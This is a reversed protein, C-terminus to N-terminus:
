RCRRFRYTLVIGLTLFLVTAPEPTSVILEFSNLTGTDNHWFDYVRLRWPGFIDQGDFVELLGPARPRFRGAFPPRGQGIAREAEDDFITHIYDAGDLFDALDYRNLYLLTGSPSHLSIQLDFVSSHTVNISVDLDSITGHDTVQIIADAMWGRTQAPDAPIPLDFAGGYTNVQAAYVPWCLGVTGILVAVITQIPNRADM